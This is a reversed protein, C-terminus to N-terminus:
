GEQRKEFGAAVTILIACLLIVVGALGFGNAITTKRASFWNYWKESMTKQATEDLKTFVGTDPNNYAYNFVIFVSFCLGAVIVCLFASFVFRM